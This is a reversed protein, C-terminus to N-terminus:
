GDGLGPLGTPDLSGKALVYKISVEAQAREGKLKDVAGKVGTLSEVVENSKARNTDFTDNVKGIERKSADALGELIVAGELGMEALAALVDDELGKARVADVNEAYNDLARNQKRFAQLVEQATVRSQEALGDFTAEATSFAETVDTTFEDLQKKSFNNFRGLAQRGRRAGRELADAASDIAGGVADFATTVGDIAREHLRGAVVDARVADIYNDISARERDLVDIHRDRAETIETETYGAATLEARLVAFAASAEEARTTSQALPDTMGRFFDGV